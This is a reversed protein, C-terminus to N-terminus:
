LEEEGAQRCNGRILIDSALVGLQMFEALESSKRFHFAAHRQAAERDQEADSATMVIVPTQACRETSRLYRLVDHGDHRPLHMDLLMLDLAPTESNRDIADILHIARAGDDAVRLEYDLEQGDLAIRILYIDAECDEAVLIQYPRRGTM